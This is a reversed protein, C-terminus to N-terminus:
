TLISIAPKCLLILMRYALIILEKYAYFLLSYKKIKEKM